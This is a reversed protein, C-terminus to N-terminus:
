NQEIEIALDLALREFENLPCESFCPGGTNELCDKCERRIAKLLQLAKDKIKENMSRNGGNMLKKDASNLRCDRFSYTLFKNVKTLM